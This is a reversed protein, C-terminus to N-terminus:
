GNTGDPVHDPPHGAPGGRGGPLSHIAQATVHATEIWTPPTYAAASAVTAAHHEPDTLHRELLETLATVDEPDILETHGGGAEPLAGGTSAITACGHALAEIVPVGLGEYRSPAISLFAHEYLWTLEGDDIGGFWQLRREYEPHSRVRAVLPDVMWGEKGVFVLGLDPHDQRLLDFADLVLEQNKRPELTGVVLLFRGVEPPLEVVVPEVDPYDAGLPIVVVDLDDRGSRHRAVTRLDRATCESNTLFLTTHRLHADLWADFVKIQRPDFWEPHIVPMVDHILAVTTVGQSVLRPLLEARPEPDYWSGEMDLFVSGPDPTGIALTANIPHLERRRRLIKGITVRTWIVIRLDGLVRVLPALPGFSDARRGARGGPPHTRLRDREEDTLTRYEGHMSPKLIPIIELGEGPADSLGSILERVVRQIGTTYGISITDTVEVLVKTPDTM